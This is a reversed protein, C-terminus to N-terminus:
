RTSKCLKKSILGFDVFSWFFFSFYLWFICKFTHVKIKKKQHALDRTNVKIMKCINVSFFDITTQHSTQHQITILSKHLSKLTWFLNKALIIALLLLELHWLMKFLHLASILLSHTKSGHLLLVSRPLQCSQLFFPRDWLLAKCTFTKKRALVIGGWTTIM